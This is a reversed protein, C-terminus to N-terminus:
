NGGSLFISWRKDASEFGIRADVLEHGAQSNSDLLGTSFFVQSTYSVNANAVLNDRDSVPYRYTVGLNASIDPMFKMAGQDIGVQALVRPDADTSDGSFTGLNRNVSLYDNIDAAFEFEVGWM